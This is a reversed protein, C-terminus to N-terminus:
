SPKWDELILQVTSKGMFSNIDPVFAVDVYGAAKVEDKRDADGWSVCAFKHGDKQINFRLHTKNQGIAKVSKEEVEADTLMFVAQRNGNGCPELARMEKVLGISVDEASLECEIDIEKVREPKEEVQQAIADCLSKRLDGVKETRVSMGAAAAHGGYTEINDECCKLAEYLNIGAPSRGSGISLGDDKIHLLVTPKDYKYMVKSAVIGVVGQAKEGWSDSAVVIAAADHAGSSEVEAVVSEFIEKEITQREKNADTLETALAMAKDEEDCCLFDVVWRADGLRGPANIRPGFGFSITSGSIKDGFTIGSEKCLAQVWLSRFKNMERLGINCLVKNEGELTAIDAITGLMALQSVKRLISGDWDYLEKRLGGKLVLAQALKFALGVGALPKCPHGAPLTGPHIVLCKPMEETEHHDVVIMDVGQEKVFDVEEVATAGCDVAIILDYGERCLMGLDDKNLGYGSVYRSPIHWGVEQIGVHRLTRVLLATSTLGDADYDGYVCIKHSKLVMEAAARMDTFDLPDTLDSLYCRGVGRKELIKKVVNKSDRNKINWIKNNM